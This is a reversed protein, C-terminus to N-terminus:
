PYAEKACAANISDADSGCVYAKASPKLMLKNSSSNQQTTDLGGLDDASTPAEMAM